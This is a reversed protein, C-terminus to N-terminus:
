IVTLGHVIFAVDYDFALHTCWIDTNQKTRSCPSRFIDHGFAWSQQWIVIWNINSYIQICQLLTSNNTTGDRNNSVGISEGRPRGLFLRFFWWAMYYLCSATILFWPHAHSINIENLKSCPSHFIDHGFIWSQQQVVIWNIDSNLQLSQLLTLTMKTGDCNNSEGIKAQCHDGYINVLCRLWLIQYQRRCTVGSRQLKVLSPNLNLWLEGFAAEKPM